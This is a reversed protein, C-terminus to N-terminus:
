PVLGLSCLVHATSSMCLDLLTSLRDTKRGKNLVSDSRAHAHTMRDQLGERRACCLHTYPVDTQVCECCNWKTIPVRPYDMM